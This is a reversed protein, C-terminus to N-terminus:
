NSIINKYNQYM